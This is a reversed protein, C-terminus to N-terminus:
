QVHFSDGLYDCFMLELHDLFRSEHYKWLVIITDVFLGQLVLSVNCYALLCLDSLKQGRFVNNPFAVTTYDANSSFRRMEHISFPRNCQWHRQM